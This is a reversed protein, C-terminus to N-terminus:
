YNYYEIVTPSEKFARENIVADKSVTINTLSYCRRFASSGIETVTRPVYVDRLNTCGYFAHGGIRTVGDPIKIARLSSCYSFTNGKIEKIKSPLTVNDLNIDGVFVEGHIYTIDDHMNIKRLSTMYEFTQGNIETIGRPITIETISSCHSFARGGLYKLTNPLKVNKLNYNYAFAGGRIEKLGEPLSISTLNTMHAFAEGRIEVVSSPIELSQINSANYFAKTKISEIGYPLVIKLINTNQFAGEGIAIVKKGKYTDPIVIEERDSIIGKTYRFVKYGDGYRTYLIRPQFFFMCSLFIVAFVVIMFKVVNPLFVIQKENIVNNVVKSIDEDPSKIIKKILFNLVSFKNYIIFYIFLAIVEIVGSVIIPYNFFYLLTSILTVIGFIGLLIDKKVNLNRTSLIKVDEGQNKIEEKLMNQLIIRESVSYTTNFTVIPSTDQIIQVNNGDFPTNCVSCVKDTVQLINGCKTCKLIIGSTVNSKLLVNNDFAQNSKGFIFSMAVIFAGIFLFIFDVIAIEPTIFFDCFLLFVWRIGFLIGFIKKSNDKSIKRSLPFLVLESMPISIFAEMALAFWISFPDKGGSALVTRPILMLVVLLLMKIKKM